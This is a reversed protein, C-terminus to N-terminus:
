ADEPQALTGIGYDSPDVASETEFQWRYSIDAWFSRTFFFIAIGLVGIKLTPCLVPTAVSSCAGRGSYGLLTLMLVFFLVFLEM